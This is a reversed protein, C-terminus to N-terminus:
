DVAQKPLAAFRELHHVTGSIIIEDDRHVVTELTAYTFQEGPRKVGVVTIHWKSRVQSAGLTVGWMVAPATIRAMGYGAEFEVFDDMTGVLMHAMRHGMQVEPLVVHHAGIGRLIRAHKATIAKAWVEKVGVDVLALVTLVSAEIDNGIAVVARGVQDVGLQRLAEEDTSDAQVVYTLAAAWRQVLEADEDIALVEKGMEILTSAVASGFRGLGVVLVADSGHRPKVSM